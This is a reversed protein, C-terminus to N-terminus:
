QPTPGGSVAFGYSQFLNAVAPTKIFNVFAKAADKQPSSKLVVCAQEIPPYDDSPIEADRGKNKM